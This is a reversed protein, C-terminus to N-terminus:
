DVARLRYGVGRVTEISVGARMDEMRRRLRHVYVEVANSGIGREFSDLREELAEKGLPRPMAQLLHELLLRERPPPDFPVGGITVARSIPDYELRGVLIPGRRGGRMRRVAANLRAVLEELAVPKVLYDDAGRNLGEVREPLGGRATLVLIAPPPAADRLARLMDLGDGDPLGRDLLVADFQHTRCAAIAADLSDVVDATWGARRLGTVLLGALRDNDEVLLARM